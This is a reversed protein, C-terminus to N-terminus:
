PQDIGVFEILSGGIVLDSAHFLDLPPQQNLLFFFAVL